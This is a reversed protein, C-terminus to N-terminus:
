VKETEVPLLFSSTAVNYERHAKHLDNYRQSWKDLGKMATIVEARSAIEWDDIETLFDELEISITLIEDYKSQAIANDRTKESEEAKKKNGELIELQKEKIELDRREFDTM